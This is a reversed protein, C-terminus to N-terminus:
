KLIVSGVYMMKTDLVLALTHYKAKNIFVNTEKINLSLKEIFQMLVPISKIESESLRFKEIESVYEHLPYYLNVLHHPALKDKQMTNIMVKKEDLIDPPKVYVLVPKDKSFIASNFNQNKIAVAPITYFVSEYFALAVPRQLFIVRVGWLFVILQLVVIVSLDLWILKKEKGPNYVILTLMPGLILIVITIFLFGYLGGSARFFPDPFWSRLFIFLVGLILCSFLFHIMSSLLRKKLTSSIFSNVFIVVM